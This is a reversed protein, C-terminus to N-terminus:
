YNFDMRWDQKPLANPKFHDKAYVVTNEFEDDTLKNLDSFKICLGGFSVENDNIIYKLDRFVNIRTELKLSSM